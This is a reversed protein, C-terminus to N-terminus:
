LTGTIDKLRKVTTVFDEKDKTHSEIKRNIKDELLSLQQEKKDNKAERDKLAMERDEQAKSNKAIENNIEAISTSLSLNAVNLEIHKKQADEVQKKTETLISDQYEKEKAIRSLDNKLSNMLKTAIIEENQLNALRLSAEDLKKSQEPTLVANNEDPTTIM